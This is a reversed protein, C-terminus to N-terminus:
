KWKKAFCKQMQRELSIAPICERSREYVCVHNVEYLSEELEGERGRVVGRRERHASLYFIVTNVRNCAARLLM